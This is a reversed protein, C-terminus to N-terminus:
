SSLLPVLAFTLAVSAASMTAAMKPGCTDDSSNFEQKM